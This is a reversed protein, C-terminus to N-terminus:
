DAIAVAAAYQRSHTLSIVLSSIELEDARRKAGGGLRAEPRGAGDTIIEIDQWAMGQATGLAKFVAEKAAFRAALSQDANARSLCYAIEAPTFIRDLLRPRRSRAQALRDIEVLDIGVGKAM